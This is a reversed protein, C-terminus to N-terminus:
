RTRVVHRSSPGATASATAGDLGVVIAISEGARSCEVVFTSARQCPDGVGESLFIALRLAEGEATRLAATMRLVADVGALAGFLLAITAGIGAVTALTGSGRELHERM